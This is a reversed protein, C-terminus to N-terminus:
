LTFTLIHHRKRDLFRASFMSWDNLFLVGKDEDYNSTAPGNIIIGGLVGEWAQLSFHSHYWTTGYQTARWTYTM